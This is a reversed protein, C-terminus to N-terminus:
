RVSMSDTQIRDGEREKTLSAREGSLNFKYVTIRRLVM